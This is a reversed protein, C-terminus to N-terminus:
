IQIVEQYTLHTNTDYFIIKLEDVPQTIQLKEYRKVKQDPNVSFSSTSKSVENGRYYLIKTVKMSLIFPSEDTFSYYLTGNPLIKHTFNSLPAGWLYKETFPIKFGFITIYGQLNLYQSKTLLTKTYNNSIEMKLAGRYYEGLQASGNFFGGPSHDVLVHGYVSAIGSLYGATKLAYPIEFKITGNSTFKVNTPRYVKVEELPPTWKFKYLSNVSIHVWNLMYQLSITINAYMMDTHKFHYLSPYEEKYLKLLNIKVPISFTDISSTEISGIREYGALLMTTSNKLTYEVSINNISYMGYNKITIPVHIVAEEGNFTVFPQGVGELIVNESAFSLVAFLIIAIVGIRCLLLIGSYVRLAMKLKHAM